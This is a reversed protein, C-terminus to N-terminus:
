RGVEGDLGLRYVAFNGDFWTRELAYRERLYAAQSFFLQDLFYVRGAIEPAARLRADLEDLMQAMFPSPLPGQVLLPDTRVATGPSFFSICNYLVVSGPPTSRAAALFGADMRDAPTEATFTGAERALDGVSPLAGATSAFFLDDCSGPLLNAATLSRRLQASKEAAVEVFSVPFRKMRYHAEWRPDVPVDVVRATLPLALALVVAAAVAPLRRSPDAAQLLRGLGVGALLAVPPFMWFLFTTKYPDLNEFLGFFSLFGLFWAALILARGRTEPQRLMGGFGYFAFGVLLVGFSRVVVLVSLMSFPFPYDGCRILSDHLPWNLLGYFFLKMPGLDYIYRAAVAPAIDMREGIQQLVEAEVEPDSPFLAFGVERGLPVGHIAVFALWPGMVLLVGLLFFAWGWRPGPAAKTLRRLVLLPTIFVLCLSLHAVLALAGVLLGALLSRGPRPAGDLLLYLLVSALLASTVNANLHTINLAFSSLVLSLAGVVGGWVGGGFRRIVLFIALGLLRRELVFFVRLGLGKMFALPTALLVPLGLRQDVALSMESEMSYGSFGRLNDFIGERAFPRSERLEPDTDGHVPAGTIAMAPVEAVRPIYAYTDPRYTALSLLVFAAVCTAGFIGLIVRRRKTDM